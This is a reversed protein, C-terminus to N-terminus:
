KGGGTAALRAEIQSESIAGPVLSGDSFILAPTGAIGLKNALAINRDIPNDCQRAAPAKKNLVYDRWAKQKDKACWISVSTPRAKPHLGDLPYQFVYIEVNKLKSLENEIKKCFPCDPDSFVYLRREGNGERYRIADQTPLQGVEIKTQQQQPQEATLSKAPILVTLDQNIFVVESGRQVQYFDGFAPTIKSGATNPFRKNLDEEFGASASCSIAALVAAAILKSKTM